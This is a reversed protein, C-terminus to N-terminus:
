FLYGSHFPFARFYMEVVIYTLYFSITSYKRTSNCLNGRYSDVGKYSLSVTMHFVNVGCVGWQWIDTLPCSLYSHNYECSYFWLGAESRGDDSEFASIVAVAPCFARTPCGISRTIVELWWIAITVMCWGHLGNRVGVDPRNSSHISSSLHILSTAQMPSSVSDVKTQSNSLTQVGQCRDPAESTVPRSLDVAQRWHTRHQPDPSPNSSFHTPNRM